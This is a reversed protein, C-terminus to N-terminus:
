CLCFPYCWLSSCVYKNFQVVCKGPWYQKLYVFLRGLLAYIIQKCSCINGGNLEWRSLCLLIKLLLLAIGLFFFCELFVFSRVILEESIQCVIQTFLGSQLIHWNECTILMALRTKKRFLDYGLVIGASQGNNRLLHRRSRSRTTTCHPVHRTTGHIQALSM